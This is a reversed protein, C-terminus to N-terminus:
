VSVPNIVKFTIDDNTKTIFDNINIVTKCYIKLSKVNILMIATIM